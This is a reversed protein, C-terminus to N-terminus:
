QLREELSELIPSLLPASQKDTGKVNDQGVMNTMDEKPCSPMPHRIISQQIAAEIFQQIPASQKGITAKNSKM